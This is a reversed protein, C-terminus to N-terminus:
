QAEEADRMPSDQASGAASQFLSRAHLSIREIEQRLEENVEPPVDYELSQDALMKRVSRNSEVWGQKLEARRWFETILRDWDKGFEIAPSFLSHDGDDPEPELVEDHDRSNFEIRRDDEFRCSLIQRGFPHGPVHKM